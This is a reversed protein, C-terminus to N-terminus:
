GDHILTGRTLSIFYTHLLINNLAVNYGYAIVKETQKKCFKSILQGTAHYFWCFPIHVWRFCPDSVESDVHLLM